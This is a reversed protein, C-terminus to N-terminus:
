QAKLYELLDLRDEKTLMPLDGPKVPAKTGYEHGFNRNGNLRTDFTFGEYGTSRLGVKEADFERSGVLFKEPRCEADKQDAACSAPLLLDYLTPVSGNHLYPGTAWIGNLSRGKYAQLSSYPTMTTDPNYNGHKNSDHIENGFQAQIINHLWEAWRRIFGKDADPTTVVGLTAKTLLAAIPAKKDLLVDGVGAGVYQNRLIGSYGEYKISNDAMTPDTGVEELKSMHAVVRRQPSSRDIEAHCSVCYKDFLKEGRKIRVQDLKGLIQEPWKPSQLETLQTEIRRLNETNVSSDYEVVKKTWGQGTILSTLSFRKGEHWDLSGFVGIVEGTNRGLPGLGGNGGLGNWQVYDHQAIDWLFPYSVPADAKIFLEQRLKVINKASTAVREVIKDRDASTIDQGIGALATKVEEETLVNNLVEEIQQRNLLHELTRNYIRGFADLRAYGYDVPSHNIINYSILRLTYTKIDAIIDAESGYAGLKMVAQVFRKQVDPKDRVAIMADTLGKLFGAMDSSAPGGDIRMGTGKYNIQGTHCAACTFGMYNKSLYNDKVFGVPLADPNSSTKKQPLYRYRNINEDSRFLEPKDAQELVLFFDYPLLNSGQTTTYFWLSQEPKWNQDLYVIKAASDGFVDQKVTAAGRDPDSDSVEWHQALVIFLPPIIFLLILLLFGHRIKFKIKPLKM